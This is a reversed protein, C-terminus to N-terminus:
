MGHMSNIIHGIAQAIVNTQLTSCQNPQKLIVYPQLKPQLGNLIAFRTMRNDQVGHGSSVKGHSSHYDQVPEREGSNVFTWNQMAIFLQNPLIYRANFAANLVAM